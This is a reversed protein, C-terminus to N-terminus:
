WIPLVPYTIEAVLVLFAVGKSALLLAVSNSFLITDSIERGHWSSNGHGLRV